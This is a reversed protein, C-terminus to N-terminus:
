TPEQIRYYSILYVTALAGAAGGEVCIGRVADGLNAGTATVGKKVAKGQADTGVEDGANLGGSGVFVKTVGEVRVQLGDNAKPNNQAVGIPIDKTSTCPVYTSDASLKVFLFQGTNNFGNGTSFDSGAIAAPIDMIPREWAM